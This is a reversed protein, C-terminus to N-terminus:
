ASGSSDMEAGDPCDLDRHFPKIDVVPTGDLADLGRVTLCLGEVKVLDVLCLGLPNPREPSRTAFVGHEKTSGPPTATLVDRRSRHLWTLVFLLPHDGIDRIGEACAPNIEIISEVPSLRGQRPAEGRNRFPSRVVGISMLAMKQMLSLHDKV